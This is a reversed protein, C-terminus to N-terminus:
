FEQFGPAVNVIATQTVPSGNTQCTLTYLSQKTVTVSQTGSKSSSSLGPGSVSCSTVGSASWTITSAGGSRVRTPNAAISVTPTGGEETCTQYTYTGSLVGSLCTRTESVSVCTTPSTVPTTQYATVSSGSPLVGGWPLTCSAGPTGGQQGGPTGAAPASPVCQAGNWVTGAGCPAVVTLVVPSADVGTALDACYFTHAGLVTVSPFFVSGDGNADADHTATWAVKVGDASKPYTTDGACSKVGGVMNWHLTVPSGQPVTISTGASAKHYTFLGFILLLALAGVSVTGFKM